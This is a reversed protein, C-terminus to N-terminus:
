ALATAVRELHDLSQQMGSEMGSDIQADRGAQDKHEALMELYTRGDKETLTVTVLAANGDPDPSARTPRRTSWASRPSSRGTSATSASRSATATTLM